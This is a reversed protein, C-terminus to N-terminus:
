SAIVLINTTSAEILKRAAIGAQNPVRLRGFPLVVLVTTTSYRLLVSVVRDLAKTFSAITIMILTSILLAFIDTPLGSYDGTLLIARMLSM